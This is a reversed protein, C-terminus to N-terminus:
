CNEYNRSLKQFSMLKNVRGLDSWLRKFYSGGYEENLITYGHEPYLNTFDKSEAFVKIIEDSYDNSDTTITIKGEKKLKSYIPTLFSDKIIRHKAHRAKPWPDPFNIFVEDIMEEELYHNFFDEGMGCVILLNELKKNNMKSWIKRVRMFKKEIAIYFIHPNKHARDTIWEGNGSCIEIHIIKACNIRSLIEPFHTKDHNSYFSPITFVGSSYSPNRADFSKITYPLDTPKMLKQFTAWSFVRVEVGYLM